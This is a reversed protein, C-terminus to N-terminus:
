KNVKVHVSMCRTARYLMLGVRDLTNGTRATHVCVSTVIIVQLGTDTNVSNGEAFVLCYAFFNALKETVLRQVFSVTHHRRHMTLLNVRTLPPPSPWRSPIPTALPLIDKGLPVLISGEAALVGM